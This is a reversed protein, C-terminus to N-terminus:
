RRRGTSVLGGAVLSLAFLVTAAAVIAPGSPLDWRLSAGLGGAVALAGLVITAGAMTEPGRAFRRAAATPILLLATILLVGVIKMALGVTLAILIMFVIHTREVAVGEARALDPHVTLALLSRWIAALAGLILVAGGYIWLIDTDSVALIDGFLYGMLDVRVTDMFGVAILGFSLAAHSLIGLLTDTPLRHQRQLGLLLAGVAVCVAIVGAIPDLGFAFGAAVGLLAAHSLTDGFYAMRRWVIFCGLPGAVLAIGIGAMLARLIFDDM